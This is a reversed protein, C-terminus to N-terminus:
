APKFKVLTWEPTVDDYTAEVPMDIKIDEVACDVLNSMVRLGQGEQLEVLCLIYPADGEFGAAAEHVITYSYLRGKGSAKTWGIDKGLRADSFCTPNPCQERPYWFIRGCHTCRPLVLEHRKAADWYEQSPAPNLPLPLPKRYETTM